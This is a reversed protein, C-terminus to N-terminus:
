TGHSKRYNPNTREEPKQKIWCGPPDGFGDWKDLAIQAETETAYCYRTKHSVGEDDIGVCLGATFLYSVVAARRGDPLERVNEYCGVQM